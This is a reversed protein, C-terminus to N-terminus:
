QGHTTLALTTGAGLYLLSSAGNQVRSLNRSYLLASIKGALLAYGSDLLVALVWFVSSLVVIQDLYPLSVSTFQPLFAGFFLITKPNTLSVWFGRQFSGSASVVKPPEDSVASFLHSAGLFLLYIVGAWKLWLFGHSLVSVFWTTGIAALFLQIIMATSTGAVTQLGRTRGHVLSTSVVVLVNPGPVAIVAISVLTFTLIEM